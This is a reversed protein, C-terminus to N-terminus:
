EESGGAGTVLEIEYGEKLTIYAKKVLATRGRMVGKRTNRTKVKGKIRATRVSEVKVDFFDEIVKKIEIKNADPMVEFVYQRLDALKMAKETILPRKLIDIM